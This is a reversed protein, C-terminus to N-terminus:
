RLIDRAEPYTTNEYGEELTTSDETWTCAITGNWKRSRHLNRRKPEQKMQYGEIMQKQFYPCHSEHQGTSSMHCYECGEEFWIKRGDTTEIYHGYPM